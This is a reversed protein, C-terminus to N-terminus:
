SCRGAFSARHRKSGIDARTMTIHDGQDFYNVTNGSWNAAIHTNNSDMYDMGFNEVPGGSFPCQTIGPAQAADQAGADRTIDYQISGFNGIKTYQAQHVTAVGVHTGTPTWTGEEYDDLLESADSAGTAPSGAFDAFDIGTSKLHLAM